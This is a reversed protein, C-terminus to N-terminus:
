RGAAKAKRKGGAAVIAEVQALHNLDHGAFMRVIHTVTEVGRESHIGHNDWQAPKLRRLMALNAKRLARFTELSERPDRRSYHLAEVWTDQDFAQIPTGNAGLVLRLRWAAVIEADALHSLLDSVSWKQPTPRKKLRAAPVGKVLRALRDATAAQVRLPKQSGLYGLIRSIYQEATEKM